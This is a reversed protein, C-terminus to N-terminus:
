FRSERPPRLWPPRRGGLLRVGSNPTRVADRARQRALALQEPAPQIEPHYSICDMPCLRACIDCDICWQDDIVHTRRNSFTTKVARTPCEASCWGCNICRGSDIAYGM